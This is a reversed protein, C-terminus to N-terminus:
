SPKVGLEELRRVLPGWKSGPRTSPLRRYLDRVERAIIRDQEDDLLGEFREDLLWSSNRSAHFAIRDLLLEVVRTGHGLDTGALSIWDLQDDWLQARIDNGDVDLVTGFPETRGEQHDTRYNQVEHALRIVNDDSMSAGVILVQKTLLLAQLVAGSPRNLADYMVMHRRTLVIKKPHEVDGHLKLIWRDAGHASTWPLVSAISRDTARVAAEYLVDYNTTVTERCDLGALLVHLLSPRSHPSIREAVRQQFRGKAAKEILEAQDTISLNDAGPGLGRVGFEAALDSVLAGWSPLGAPVGVGAGTFLALAGAQAQTGLALAKAELHDPLVAPLNKRAYQAAAYVAPDPSVLAVDVDLRRASAQLREVLLRLVMGRDQGFGGLGIGIVPIAVLPRTAGRRVFPYADRRQDISALCREVRDLIVEYADPHSGGINVVWIRDRSGHARGWGHKEWRDPRRVDPGVLDDWYSNFSFRQDVPILAADHVLAGIRGHVVFL